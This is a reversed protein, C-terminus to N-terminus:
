GAHFAACNLVTVNHAVIEVFEEAEGAPDGHHDAARTFKAAGHGLAQRPGARLNNDDAAISFFRLDPEIADGRSATPRPKMGGLRGALRFKFAQAIGGSVCTHPEM